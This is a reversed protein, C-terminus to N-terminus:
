DHGPERIVPWKYKKSVIRFALRTNSRSLPLSSRGAVLSGTLHIGYTALPRGTDLKRLNHGIVHEFGDYKAVTGASEGTEDRGASKWM